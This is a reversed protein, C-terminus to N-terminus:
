ALVEIDDILLDPLLEVGPPDIVHIDMPGLDINQESIQLRENSDDDESSELKRQENRLASIQELVDVDKPANVVEVNNNSDKVLDVNNFSLRGAEQKVILEAGM